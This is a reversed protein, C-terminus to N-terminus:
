LRCCSGALPTMLQVAVRCLFLLNCHGLCKNIADISTRAKLSDAEM